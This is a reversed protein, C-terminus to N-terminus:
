PSRFLPPPKRLRSLGSHKRTGRGPPNTLPPILIRNKYHQRYRGQKYPISTVGAFIASALRNLVDPSSSIANASGTNEHTYSPRALVDTRRRIAQNKMCSVSFFFFLIHPATIEFLPFLPQFKGMVGAGGSPNVIHVCTVDEISTRCDDAGNSKIQPM